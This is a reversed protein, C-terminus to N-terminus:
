RTFDLRDRDAESRTPKTPYVKLLFHGDPCDLVVGALSIRPCELQPGMKYRIARVAPDLSAQQLAYRLVPNGVPIVARCKPSTFFSSGTARRVFQTTRM